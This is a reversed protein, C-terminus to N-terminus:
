ATSFIFHFVNSETIFQIRRNEFWTDIRLGIKEHGNICLQSSPLLHKSQLFVIAEEESKPLDWITISECM